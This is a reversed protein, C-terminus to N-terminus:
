TSFHGRIQGMYQFHVLDEEGFRIHTISTWVMISKLKSVLFESSDLNKYKELM